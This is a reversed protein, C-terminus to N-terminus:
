YEGQGSIVRVPFPLVLARGSGAEAVARVRFTYFASAELGKLVHSTMEPNVTVTKRVVDIGDLKRAELAYCLLPGGDCHQPPQWSLRVFNDGVEQVEFPSGPRGPEELANVFDLVLVDVKERVM